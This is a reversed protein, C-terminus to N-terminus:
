GHDDFRDDDDGRGRGRHDDPTAVAQVATAAPASGRGSGSGGPGRNGRGSSPSSSASPSSEAKARRHVTQRVIETRAKPKAVDDQTQVAAPDGGSGSALAVAALVGLALVTVFSAIKARSPMPIRETPPLAGGADARSRWAAALRPNLRPFVAYM